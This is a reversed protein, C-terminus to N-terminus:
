SGHCFWDRSGDAIVIRKVDHVIRFVVPKAEGPLLVVSTEADEAGVHEAVASSEDEKLAVDAPVAKVGGGLNDASPRRRDVVVGGSVYALDLIDAAKAPIVVDVKGVAIGDAPEHVGHGADLGSLTAVDGVDISGIVQIRLLSNIRNNDDM